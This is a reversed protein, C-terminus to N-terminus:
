GSVEKVVLPDGKLSRYRDLAVPMAAYPEFSPPDLTAYYYGTGGAILDGWVGVEIKVNLKRLDVPSGYLRNIQDAMQGAGSGSQLEVTADKFTGDDDYKVRIRGLSTYDLFGEEVKDVQSRIYASVIQKQFEDMKPTPQSMYQQMPGTIAEREKDSTTNRWADQMQAKGTVFNKIFQDIQATIADGMRTRTQVIFDRILLQGAVDKARQVEKYIASVLSAAQGIGPLEEELIPKLAKEYGLKVVEGLQDLFVDKFDPEAKKNPPFGMETQFNLLADMFQDRPEKLKDSFTSYFGDIIASTGTVISVGEDDSFTITQTKAGATQIRGASRSVDACSAEGADQDQRVVARAVNEAEQEYADDPSGVALKKQIPGGGQQVVHTLEHALLEQGEHSGPQYMGNRFFIDSGTTFALADVAHNLEDARADTHIRVGEFNTGFAKEMKRRVSGDLSQGGGRARDIAGEVEPAVEAEGDAKRALGLVRQVYRNGRTRQLRLISQQLLTAQGTPGQASAAERLRTPRMVALLPDAPCPNANAIGEDKEPGGRSSDWKAPTAVRHTDDNRLQQYEAM